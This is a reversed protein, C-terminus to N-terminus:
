PSGGSNLARRDMPDPQFERLLISGILLFVRVKLIAEYEEATTDRVKTRIHALWSEEVFRAFSINGDPRGGFLQRRSGHPFHRLYGFKGLDIENAIIQAMKECQKRNAPTDKLATYQKCRIGRYDISQVFKLCGTRYHHWLSL